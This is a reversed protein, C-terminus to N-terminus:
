LGRERERDKIEYAVRYRYPRYLATIIIVEVHLRNDSVTKGLECWIM